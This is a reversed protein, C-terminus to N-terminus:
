GGGAEELMRDLLARAEAESLAEFRGEGYRAVFTKAPKAQLRELAEGPSM